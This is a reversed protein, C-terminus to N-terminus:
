GSTGGESGTGTGAGPYTREIQAIVAELDYVVTLAAEARLVPDGLRLLAVLGAAVEGETRPPGDDPRATWTIWKGVHPVDVVGGRFTWPSLVAHDSPWGIKEDRPLRLAPLESPLAFMPRVAHDEHQALEERFYTLSVEIGRDRRLTRRDLSQLRVGPLLARLHEQRDPPIFDSCRTGDPLMTHASAAATAFGIADLRTPRPTVHELFGADVIEGLTVDRDTDKTTVVVLRRWSEGADPHDHHKLYLSLRCRLNAPSSASADLMALHAPLHRLMAAETRRHLARAGEPTLHDRSLALFERAAGSHYNVAVRLNEALLEGVLPAGRYFTAAVEQRMARRAHDVFDRGIPDADDSDLPLVLELLENPDFVARDSSFTPTVPQADIRVPVLSGRGCDMALMAAGALGIDVEPDVLVDLNSALQNSLRWDRATRPERLRSRITLVARTGALVRAGERVEITGGNGARLVITHAHGDLSRTDLVLEDSVLFASQLGIGFTGSPRMWEPMAGILAARAPNKRSSGIRQLHPIDERRIGTGHDEVVVRYRQLPEPGSTDDDLREISVDIPYDALAARLDRMSGEYTPFASAGREAFLRLLTADAANQILERMCAFRDQYLNGGRALELLSERDVELPATLEENEDAMPRVYWFTRAWKNIGERARGIGDVVGLVALRLRRLPGSGTASAYRSCWARCGYRASRM